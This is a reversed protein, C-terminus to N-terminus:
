QAARKKVFLGLPLDAAPLLAARELGASVEAQTDDVLRSGFQEALQEILDGNIGSEGEDVARWCWTTTVVRWPQTLPPWANPTAADAVSCHRSVTTM